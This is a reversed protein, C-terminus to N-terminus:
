GYYLYVTSETIDVEKIDSRRTYRLVRLLLTILKYIESRTTVIGEWIDHTKVNFDVMLSNLGSPFQSMIVLSCPSIQVLETTM